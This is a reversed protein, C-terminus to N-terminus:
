RFPISANKLRKECLINRLIKEVILVSAERCLRGLNHHLLLIIEGIIINIESYNRTFPFFYLERRSVCPEM